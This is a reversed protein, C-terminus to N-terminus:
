KSGVGISEGGEGEGHGLSGALRPQEEMAAGQPHQKSLLGCLLPNLLVGFVAPVFPPDVNDSLDTPVCEPFVM